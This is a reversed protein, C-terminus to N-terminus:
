SATAFFYNATGRFLAFLPPIFIRRSNSRGAARKDPKEGHQRKAEAGQRDKNKVPSDADSKEKLARMKLSRM